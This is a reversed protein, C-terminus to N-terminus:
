IRILKGFPGPNIVVTKGIRDDKGSNEHFHGSIALMPNNSEIFNRISRNGVFSDGIKDLRTQYPPAHTVLIVKKGQLKPKVM